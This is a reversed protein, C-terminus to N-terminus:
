FVIKHDPYPKNATIQTSQNPNAANMMKDYNKDIKFNEWCDVNKTRTNTKVRSIKVLKKALMNCHDSKWYCAGAPSQCDHIIAMEIPAGRFFNSIILIMYTCM